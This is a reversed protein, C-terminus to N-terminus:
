EGLTYSEEVMKEVAEIVAMKWDGDNLVEWSFDIWDIFYSMDDLVEISLGDKTTKVEGLEVNEVQHAFCIDDYLEEEGDLIYGWVESKFEKLRENLKIDREIIDFTFKCPKEPFEADCLPGFWEYQKEITKQWNWDVLERAPIHIFDREPEIYSICLEYEHFDADLKVDKFEVDKGMRAFVYETICKVIKFMKKTDSNLNKLETKNFKYTKM